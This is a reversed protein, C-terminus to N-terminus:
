RARPARTARVCSASTRRHRPRTRSCSRACVRVRANLDAGLRRRRAADRRERRESNGPAVCRL